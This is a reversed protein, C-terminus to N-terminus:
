NLLLTHPDCALAELLLTPVGCSLPWVAIIHSVLAVWAGSM